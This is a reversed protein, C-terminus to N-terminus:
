FGAPIKGVYCSRCYVPRDGRPRFPVTTEVGCAACVAGYTGRGASRTRPRDSSQSRRVQRCDRCRVPQNAFGKEAFFQQERMSFLFQSGCDKCGLMKDELAVDGGLLEFRTLHSWGEPTGAGANGGRSGGRSRQRRREPNRTRSGARFERHDARWFRDADGDGVAREHNWTRM